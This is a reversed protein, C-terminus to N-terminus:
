TKIFPPEQVSSFKTDQKKISKLSKSFDMSLLVNHVSEFHRSSTKRDPFYSPSSFTHLATTMPKENKSVYTSPKRYISLRLGKKGKGV